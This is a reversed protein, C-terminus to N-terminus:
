YSLYEKEYLSVKQLLKAETNSNHVSISVLECISSSNNVWPITIAFLLNSVYVGPPESSNSINRVDIATPRHMNKTM